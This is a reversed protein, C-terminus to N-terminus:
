RLLLSSLLLTPCFRRFRGAIPSITALLTNLLDIVPEAQRKIPLSSTDLSSNDLSTPSSELSEAKSEVEDVLDEASSLDPDDLQRKTPVASELEGELISVDTLDSTHLSESNVPLSPVASELSALDASDLSKSPVASELESVIDDTSSLSAGDLISTPAALTSLFLTPLALLTFHM